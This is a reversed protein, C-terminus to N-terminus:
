MPRPGIPDLFALDIQPIFKLVRSSQARVLGPHALSAAAAALVTRRHMRIDKKDAMTTIGGLHRAFRSSGPPFALVAM